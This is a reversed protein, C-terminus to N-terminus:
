DDEGGFDHISKVLYGLIKYEKENSIDIPSQNNKISLMKTGNKAWLFGLLVQDSLYKVLVLKENIQASYRAFILIDNKNIGQINDFDSLISFYENKDDLLFPNIKSKTSDDLIDSYYDILTEKSDNLLYDVNVKYIRALGLLTKGRPISINNEYKSILYRSVGVMEAADQQSYGRNMRIEKLKDGLRM